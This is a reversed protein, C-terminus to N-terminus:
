QQQQLSKTQEQQLQSYESQEQLVLLHEQQM